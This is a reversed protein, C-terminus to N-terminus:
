DALVGGPEPAVLATFDSRAALASFQDPEEGPGVRVVTWPGPDDPLRDDLTVVVRVHPVSAFDRAISRRMARGEEAWSAPLLSGALGGGTVWEHVLVQITGSPAVAVIGMRTM